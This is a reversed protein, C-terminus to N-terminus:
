LKDVKALGMLMSRGQWKTIKLTRPSILKDKYLHKHDKFSKDLILRIIGRAAEPTPAAAAVLTKSLFGTNSGVFMNADQILGFPEGYARGFASKLLGINFNFFGRTIELLEGISTIGITGMVAKDLKMDFFLKAGPLVCERFIPLPHEGADGDAYLSVDVKQLIATKIGEGSYTDSVQLGKLASSVASQSGADAQGGAELKNILSAELEGALKGLANKFYKQNSDKNALVAQQIKGWYRAKLAADKQLLAYLIATRFVGKLSSGPFYVSGKANRVQPCVDNLSQKGKADTVNVEAEAAGTICKKEDLEAILEATDRKRAAEKLWDLLNRTNRSDAVYKEYSALWKNEYIYFHWAQRDLFYAKQKKPDYLYDKASLVASGGINVPSLVTLCLSATEEKLNVM